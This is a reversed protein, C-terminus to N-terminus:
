GAYPARVRRSGTLAARLLPDRVARAGSVAVAVLLAREGAVTDPGNGDAGGGDAGDAPRQVGRVPKPLADLRDQGVPSAWASYSRSEARQIALCGLSLLLPLGFWAAVLWDLQGEQGPLLVAAVALVVVLVASRRVAAHAADLGSRVAHPVALGAGVLRDALSRVAEAAATAARVPETPSQRGPGVARIVTREVDDRGEPDVVTVWGTHALLLRKRVHMTVMAVDVVREPGGALFATEYLTLGADATTPPTDSPPRAARASALCFRLCTLMAAFWAVLLLIVWIM